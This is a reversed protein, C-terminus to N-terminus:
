IKILFEKRNSTGKFNEELELFFNHNACEYLYLRIWYFEETTHFFFQVLLHEMIEPAVASVNMAFTICYVM